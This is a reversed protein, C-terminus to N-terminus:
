AEDGGDEEVKVQIISNTMPCIGWHTVEESWGYDEMMAGEPLPALSLNPHTGGCVPCQKIDKCVNTKKGAM